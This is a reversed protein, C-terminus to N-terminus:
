PFLAFAAGGFGFFGCFLKLGILGLVTEMVIMTSMEPTLCELVSFRVSAPVLRGPKPLFRPVRERYADFAEGFAARLFEEEALAVLSYYVVGLPLVLLLIWRNAALLLGATQLLNAVYLPNRTWAYPGEQILRDARRKEEARSKPGIYTLAWLRGAEGAAAVAAGVLFSLATPAAYLVLLIMAPLPMVGRFTYLFRGVRRLFSRDM